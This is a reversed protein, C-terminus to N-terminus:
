FCFLVLSFGWGILWGVLFGGFGLGSEEGLGVGMVGAVFVLGFLFCCHLCCSM